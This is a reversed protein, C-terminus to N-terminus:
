ANGKAEGYDESSYGDYQLLNNRRAAVRSDMLSQIEGIEVPPMLAEIKGLGDLFEKAAGSELGDRIIAEQAELSMREIKSIAAEEMSTIKAKAAARLEARRSAVANHGRSHWNFSIVPAFEEPIGIAKCRRQIREQASDVVKQVEEKAQAWIADDDWHHMKASQAEFEALLAASRERASQKMVKERKRILSQLNDRDARTMKEM